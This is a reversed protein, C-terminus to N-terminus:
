RTPATEYTYLRALVGIVADRLLTETNTTSFYKAAGPHCVDKVQLLLRPVHWDKRPHPKKKVVPSPTTQSVVPLPRTSQMSATTTPPPPPPPTPIPTQVRM